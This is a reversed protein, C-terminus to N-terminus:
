RKELQSEYINLWSTESGEVKYCFVEDGSNLRCTDYARIKGEFGRAFGSVIKVEQGYYFKPENSTTKDATCGILTGILATLVLLKKM